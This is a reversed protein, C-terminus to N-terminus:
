GCDQHSNSTTQFGAENALHNGAAVVWAGIKVPSQQHTTIVKLPTSLLVEVAGYIGSFVPKRFLISCAFSTERDCAASSPLGGVELKGLRTIGLETHTSDDQQGAGYVAFLM